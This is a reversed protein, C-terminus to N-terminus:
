IAPQIKEQM